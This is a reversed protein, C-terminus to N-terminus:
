HKQGKKGGKHRAGSAESVMRRAAKRLKTFPLLVLAAAGIVYVLWEMTHSTHYLLFNQVPFVTFEFSPVSSFGHIKEGQYEYTYNSATMNFTVPKPARYILVHSVNSNKPIRDYTITELGHVLTFYQAPFGTESLQLQRADENGLNIFDYVVTIDKGQVMATNAIRKSAVVLAGEVGEEHGLGGLQGRALGALCLLVALLKM